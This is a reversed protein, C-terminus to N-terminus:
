HVHGEGVGSSVLTSRRIAAGGATVLRQGPALGDVLLSTGQRARVDIEQRLFGEGDLQLYVVPVGGDDVVASTPIVVGRETKPMFVEVEVASGLRLSEVAGSIEFICTVTHTQRSVEPSRSVLRVQDSGFSLPTTDNPGRVSLGGPKGDFMEAKDPQLFVEVWLPKVRVLRALAEGAAVVQGPTVLVEAIQGSFPASISVAWRGGRAKQGAQAAALDGAAAAHQARLTTVLRQATALEASSIAELPLLKELRALRDEALNLASEKETHIAELEALSRGATVRPTLEFLTAQREVDLGVYPWPEGVVVGDLPATLVIEGGAVPRLYGPGRAVQHVEGEQTWQTAFTTRWQQEKLFSITGARGGAPGAAGVQQFSTILGGPADASGVSVRGAPVEEMRDAIDVRFLLDFVGAIPPEIEISFIGARLVKEQRFTAESGDAARLVFKVTGEGPASFDHLVTVHTHSKAMRGVVLPDTEAFIEFHEGWATVAWGEDEAHVDGHSEDRGDCGWILLLLLMKVLGAPFRKM